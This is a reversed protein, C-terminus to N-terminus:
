SSREKTPSGKGKAKRSPESATVEAADVLKEPEGEADTAPHDVLEGELALATRKWEDWGGSVRHKFGGDAAAQILGEAHLIAAMFGANNSSRGAFATSLTKSSFAEGAPLQALTNRVVEFEVLEDSFHGGGPNSTIRFWLVERDVDAMLCYEIASSSRLGRKPASAKKLLLLKQGDKM